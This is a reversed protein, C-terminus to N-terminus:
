EIFSRVRNANIIIISIIIISGGTLLNIGIKENLLIYSSFVGFMPLLYNFSATEILPNLIILKNWMLFVTISGIFILYSLTLWALPTNIYVERTIQVNLLILLGSLFGAFIMGFSTVLLLNDDDKLQKLMITGLALAITALIMVCDGTNAKTGTTFPNFGVSISVGLVGLFFGLLRRILMKKERWFTSTMISVFLPYSGAIVSSKSASIDGLAIYSLLYYSFYQFFGVVFSILVIRYSIKSLRSPMMFIIYFFLITGAVLFRIAVLYTPQFFTIAIKGIPWTTGWLFFLVTVSLISRLYQQKKSM